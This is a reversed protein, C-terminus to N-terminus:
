DGYEKKHIDDVKKFDNCMGNEDLSIGDNFAKQCYDCLEYICNERPCKVGGM